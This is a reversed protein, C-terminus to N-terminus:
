SNEKEYLENERIKKIQYYFEAEGGEELTLDFSRIGEKTKVLVKCNEDANFISSVKDGEEFLMNKYNDAVVLEYLGEVIIKKSLKKQIMQNIAMSCFDRTSADESLGEANSIYMHKTKHFVNTLLCLVTVVLTLKIYNLLKEEASKEKLMETIMAALGM